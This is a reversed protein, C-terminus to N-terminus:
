EIHDHYIRICGDDRICVLYTNEASIKASISIDGDGTGDGMIEDLASPSIHDHMVLNSERAMELPDTNQLVSIAQIIAISPPTEADFTHDIPGSTDVDISEPTLIDLDDVTDM